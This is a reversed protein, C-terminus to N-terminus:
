HLLLLMVIGGIVLLIGILEMRNTKERFIFHSSIFTFVLEIQGLARVYAANQITMATFWGVSALAGVLGVMSSPRWTRMSARLDDPARWALWITMCVTQILLVVLLTYSASMLFDSTGLSLSAARYSVAAVGYLAGSGLGTLTPKESLSRIFNAATLHSKAMSIAIVGALSILIAAVAGFTLHDGLVIVGFVATQITETKSYTTGVAFNRYAFLAVLLVTAWIQALGGIVCYVLFWTNPTPAADGKLAMLAAFYIAAIPLGYVFRVYTAGLASMEGTLRKQLTSRTNQLFAAVLTLGIWLPM